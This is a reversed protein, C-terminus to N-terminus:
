PEPKARRGRKSATAVVDPGILAAARMPAAHRTAPGTSLARTLDHRAASCHGSIDTDSEPGVSDRDRWPLLLLCISVPWVTAMMVTWVVDEIDWRGPTDAATRMMAVSLRVLYAETILAILGYILLAYRWQMSLMHHAM